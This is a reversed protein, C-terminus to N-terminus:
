LTRSTTRSSAGGDDHDDDDDDDDTPLFLQKKLHYFPATEGHLGAKNTTQGPESRLFIHKEVNKLRSSLGGACPSCM